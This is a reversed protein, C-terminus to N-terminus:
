LSLNIWEWILDWSNSHYIWNTQLVDHWVGTLFCAIEFGLVYKNIKLTNSDRLQWHFTWHKLMFLSILEALKYLSVYFM